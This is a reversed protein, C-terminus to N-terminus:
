LSAPHRHKFRPTDEIRKDNSRAQGLLRRNSRPCGPYFPTARRVFAVDMERVVKYDRTVFCGKYEGCTKMARELFLDFTKDYRRRESLIPSRIKLHYNAYEAPVEEDFLPMVEM